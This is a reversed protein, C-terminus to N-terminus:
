KTNKFKHKEDMITWYIADRLLRGLPETHWQVMPTSADKDHNIIAQYENQKLQDGSNLYIYASREGVTMSIIDENFEYMKGQNKRHWESTCKTYLNTKGIGHLLGVKIISAPEQRLAEPLDENFKLAQKTVNILHAVLGGEFANHLSTMTSAPAYFFGMEDLYDIVEENCVNHQKILGRYIKENTKITKEDM